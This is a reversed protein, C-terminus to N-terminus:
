ENVPMLRHAGHNEHLGWFVRHQPHIPSEAVVVGTEQLGENMGKGYAM